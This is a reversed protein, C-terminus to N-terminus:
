QAKQATDYSPPAGRVQTPVRKTRHGDPNNPVDPAAVAPQHVGVDSMLFQITRNQLAITHELLDVRKANADVDEAINVLAKKLAKYSRRGKKESESVSAENPTVRNVIATGLGSLGTILAIIIATSSRDAKM